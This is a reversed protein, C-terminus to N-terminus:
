NEDLAPKVYLKGGLNLGLFKQTEGAGGMRAVGIVEINISNPM